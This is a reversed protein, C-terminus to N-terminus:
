STKGGAAAAIKVETDQATADLCKRGESTGIPKQTSESKICNHVDTAASIRQPEHDSFWGYSLRFTAPSQVATYVDGASINSDKLTWRRSMPSDRLHAEYPLLMPEGIAIRSGSWKAHIHKTVSSIKKRAKLTLELFPNLGDKELGIRTVEDIPFLQLKIKTLPDIEKKTGICGESVSLQRNAAETASASLVVSAKQIPGKQRSGKKVKSTAVINRGPPQTTNGKREYSGASNSFPRRKHVSITQFSPSPPLHRSGGM